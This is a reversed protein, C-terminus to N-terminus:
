GQFLHQHKDAQTNNDLLHTRVMTTVVMIQTFSITMMKIMLKMMIITM